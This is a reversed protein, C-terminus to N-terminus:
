ELGPPTGTLSNPAARLARDLAALEGALPDATADGPLELAAQDAGDEREGVRTAEETRSESDGRLIKLGDPSLAWDPAAAAIQRRARLVAQARTVEHTPSRIDMRADHLVLDELVVLEGALWLSASADQFADPQPFGGSWARGSVSM